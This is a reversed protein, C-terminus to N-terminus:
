SENWLDFDFFSGTIDPSQLQHPKESLPTLRGANSMEHLEEFGSTTPETMCPLFVRDLEEICEAPSQHRVSSAKDTYYGSDVIGHWVSLSGCPLQLNDEKTSVIQSAADEPYVVFGQPLISGIKTEMFLKDETTPLAPRKPPREEHDGPASEVLDSFNDSNLWPKSAACICRRRGEETFTKGGENCAVCSDDMIVEDFEKELEGHLEVKRRSHERQVIDILNERHDPHDTHFKSLAMTNPIMEYKCPSSPYQEPYVEPFLIRFIGYWKERETKRYETRIAIEKLKSEMEVQSEDREKENCKVM